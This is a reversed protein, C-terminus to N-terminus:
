NRINQSNYLTSEKLNNDIKQSLIHSLLQSTLHSNFLGTTSWWCTECSHLHTSKTLYSSIRVEFKTCQCTYKCYRRQSIIPGLIALAIRMRLFGRLKMSKMSQMQLCFSWNRPSSWNFKNIRFKSQQCHKWYTLELVIDISIFM